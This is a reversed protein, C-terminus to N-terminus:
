CPEVQDGRWRQRRLEGPTRQYQHRLVRSFHTPSRFGVQAAIAEIALGTEGLLEVGRRARIQWLYRMPSTQLSRQFLRTLHQPTVGVEAALQGLKLPEDLRALMVGIARQVLDAGGAPQRALMAEFAVAELIALGLALLVHEAVDQTGAPMGLGCEMLSYVRATLPLCVPLAACRAQVAPPVAAPALACWTHRTATTRAFHFQERKGPLLLTLHQPPVLRETEDVVIRAEGSYVLVLQFDHQIRPGLTGGPPYVVDGFIAAAQGRLRNM